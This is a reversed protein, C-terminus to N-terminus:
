DLLDPQERVIKEYLPQFSFWGALSYGLLGIVPIRIAALERALVKAEEPLGYDTLDGCAVVVDAAEGIQTFLAQFAGQSSKTCHIDSIAAVRVTRAM